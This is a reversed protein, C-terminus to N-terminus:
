FKKAMGNDEQFRPLNHVCAYTHTYFVQSFFYIAHFARSVPWVFFVVYCVVLVVTLVQRCIDSFSGAKSCDSFQQCMRFSYERCCTSDILCVSSCNRWCDVCCDVCSRCFCALCTVFIRSHEREDAEVLFLVESGCVDSGFQLGCSEGTGM